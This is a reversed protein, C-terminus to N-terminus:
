FRQIVLKIQLKITCYKVKLYTLTSPIYYMTRLRVERSIDFIKGFDCVSSQRTFDGDRYLSGYGSSSTPINLSQNSLKSGFNMNPAVSSARVNLSPRFSASHDDFSGREVSGSRKKKDTGLAKWENAVHDTRNIFAAINKTLQDNETSNTAKIEVNEPLKALPSFTSRNYVTRMPRSASESKAELEEKLLM